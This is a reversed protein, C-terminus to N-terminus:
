IAVATRVCSLQAGDFTAVETVGAPRRLCGVYTQAASTVHGVAEQAHRSSGRHLRLRRAAYGIVGLQVGQRWVHGPREVLLPHARLWVVRGGHEARLGVDGEPLPYTIEAGLQLGVPIYGALFFGLFFCASGTLWRSRLSLVFTYVFLGLTSFAYTVVSVEKYKGTKDLVWGAAWSGLLGSMVLTVGLLGAFNEEGPFYRMVVPNLLTSVSYFAGTNIGYSLLLLRFDRDRM